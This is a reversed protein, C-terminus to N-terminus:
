ETFLHSSASFWRYSHKWTPLFMCIKQSSGPSILNLSRSNIKWKNKLKVTNALKFILSLILVLYRFRFIGFLLLCWYLFKSPKVTTAVAKIPAHLGKEPSKWCTHMKCTCIINGACHIKRKRSNKELIKITNKM